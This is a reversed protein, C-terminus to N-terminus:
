RVVSGLKLKEEKSLKGSKKLYNLMFTYHPHASSLRDVLIKKDEAIHSTFPVFVPINEEVAFRLFRIEVDKGDAAVAENIHSLGNNLLSLKKSPNFYHKALLAIASGHYAKLLAQTEAATLNKLKEAQAESKVALPYLVRASQVKDQVGASFSLCLFSLLLLIDSRMSLM